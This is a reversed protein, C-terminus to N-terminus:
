ERDQRDEVVLRQDVNFSGMVVSAVVLKRDLLDVDESDSVVVLDHVRVGLATNPLAVEFRILSEELDGVDTERAQSSTYPQVLCPGSYVTLTSETSYLGTEDDFTQPDATWLPFGNVDTLPSGGGDLTAEANARTITCTDVM